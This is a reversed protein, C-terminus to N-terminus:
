RALRARLLEAAMLPPVGNICVGTAADLGGGLEIRPLLRVHWRFGPAQGQTPGTYLVANYAFDPFEAAIAGLIRGMADALAKVVTDTAARFDAGPKSPLLWVEFPAGSAYPCLATIPGDFLVRVREEREFDLIDQYVSRGTRAQAEAARRFLRQQLEPVEPLGVIQSHPHPQSSGSRVGHNRFWALYKLRTDGSLDRMRERVVGLSQRLVERDQEWLPTHHDSGEIIVEHAGTGSVVDYPGRGRRELETEVMLAPFRNAVARVLWGDGQAVRALTPGTSEEHGPCFPCDAISVSPLGPAVPNVPRHLREPAILVLSGTTPDRRLSRSM